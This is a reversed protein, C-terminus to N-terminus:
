VDKKFVRRGLLLLLFLFLLLLHFLFIKEHRILQVKLGNHTSVRGGMKGKERKGRKKVAMEKKRQNEGWCRVDDIVVVVKYGGLPNM